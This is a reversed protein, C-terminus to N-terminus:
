AIAGRAKAPFAKELVVGSPNYDPVTEKLCMVLGAADRADIARRLQKLSGEMVARRRLFVRIQQHPTPATDEEITSLEEYLKEGPRIGSFVIRIDQDPRLGSLLVMKRALDLIRVPQGMDLVFVEGGQGMAAAELM